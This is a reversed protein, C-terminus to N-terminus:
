DYHFDNNTTLLYKFLEINNKKLIIANKLFVRM